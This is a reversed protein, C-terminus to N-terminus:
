RDVTDKAALLRNLTLISLRVTYIKIKKLRQVLLVQLHVRLEATYILPLDKNQGFLLQGLQSHSLTDM